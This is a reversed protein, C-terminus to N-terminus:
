IRLKGVQVGSEISNDGCIAGCILAEENIESEVTRYIKGIEYLWCSDKGAALNRSCINLHEEWLNLRLHSTDALLPNSIPVMENNNQKLPVLSFTTVEQMGSDTLINRIKREVYQKPNLGGPKLPSPLNSDFKDYGIIRALEEIIIAESIHDIPNGGFEEPITISHLGSETFKIWEESPPLQEADRYSVTPLLVEESFDRVMERIMAQEESEEFNMVESIQGLPNM